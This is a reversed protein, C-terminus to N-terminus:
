NKNYCRGNAWSPNAFHCYTNGCCTDGRSCVGDFSICNNRINTNYCRGLSWTPDSKVCHLNSCCPKNVDCTEDFASCSNTQPKSVDGSCKIDASISKSSFPRMIVNVYNCDAGFKFKTDTDHIQGNPVCIFGEVHLENTRALLKVGENAKGSCTVVEERNMSYEKSLSYMVSTGSTVSRESSIEENKSKHFELGAGGGGSLQFVGFNVGAEVNGSVSKVTGESVGKIIANSVGEQQSIELGKTWSVTEGFTVHLERQCDNPGCYLTSTMTRWTDDLTINSDTIIPENRTIYAFFTCTKSNYECSYVYSNFLAAIVIAFSVM